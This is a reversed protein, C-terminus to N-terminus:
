FPVTQDEMPANVKVPDISTHTATDLTAIKATGGLDEPRATWGAIAFVPKFNQGYKGQVSEHHTIEVIPVAGPHADRLKLYERYITKVAKNLNYSCSSFERVGLDPSYAQCQFGRKHQGGEPEPARSDQDLVIDPAQGDRFRFYGTQLNEFDMIMKPPQIEIVEGAADNIGWVNEKSNYKIYRTV